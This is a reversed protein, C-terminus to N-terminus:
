KIFESIKLVGLFNIFYFVGYMYGTARRSIISLVFIPFLKCVCDFRTEFRDMLFICAYLTHSEMWGYSFPCIM